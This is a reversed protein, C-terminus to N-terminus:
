LHRMRHLIHIIRRPLAAGHHPHSPPPVLCAGSGGGRSASRLVASERQRTMAWEPAVIEGRVLKGSPPTTPLICMM